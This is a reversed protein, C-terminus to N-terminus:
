ECYIFVTSNELLDLLGKRSKGFSLYRTSTKVKNATLFNEITSAKIAFNTGESISSDLKMNSLGYLTFM